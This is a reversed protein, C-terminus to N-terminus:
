WSFSPRGVLLHQTIAVTAAHLTHPQFARGTITAAVEAGDLLGLLTEVTSDRDLQLTFEGTAQGEAIAASLPERWVKQVNAAQRRLGSGRGAAACLDIWTSARERIADPDFAHDIMQFIRQRPSGAEPASTAVERARQGCAAALCEQGLRARTEFYHQLLGISVGAEKAVDRLRMREFGVRQLVRVGAALLEARRADVESSSKTPVRDLILRSV